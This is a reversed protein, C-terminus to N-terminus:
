QVTTPHRLWEFLADVLEAALRRQLRSLQRGTLRQIRDIAHKRPDPSRLLATLEREIEPTIREQDRQRQIHDRMRDLIRSHIQSVRSESLGLHEGIERM